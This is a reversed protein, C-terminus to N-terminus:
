RSLARPAGEVMQRHWVSFSLLGWLIGERNARRSLHEEIWDSVVGSDFLGLRSIRSPSLEDVLLDRLENRLWAATPGVFGRKPATMHEPTLRSSVAQRLIWKQQGRRIRQGDSLPFLRDILVHDVFPVRVELSHASAIRDSLALLDDPLYTSYDISLATRVASDTGRAQVVAEFVGAHLAPNADPGRLKAFDEVSLRSVFDAYRTAVSGGGSRLFRKARNLGLGGHKPERIMSAAHSVGARLSAPLRGYVAGVGLARHRRYGGFLEDGGTGALVVKYDAAVRSSILWTPLASEDSLPEDLAFCIPEILDQISPEIDVVTLRAGYKNALAQALPVEDSSAAGSGHYRATFAHATQGQLAMSSVVASSDIGGSLLAAVPVDSELHALVSDDLAARVRERLDGTPEDEGTPLRWYQRM